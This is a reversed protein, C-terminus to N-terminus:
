PIMNFVVKVSFTPNSFYRTVYVRFWLAQSPQSGVSGKDISSLRRFLNNLQLLSSSFSGRKDLGKTLLQLQIPTGTLALDALTSRVYLVGFDRLYRSATTERRWRLRVNVM